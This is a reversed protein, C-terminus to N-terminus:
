DSETDSGSQALAERLVRDSHFLKSVMGLLIMLEKHNFHARETFRLLQNHVHIPSKNKLYGINQLVEM